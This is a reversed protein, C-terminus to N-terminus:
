ACCRKHKKGSGCPCFDNRGIKANRTPSSQPADRITMSELSARQLVALLEPDIAAKLYELWESSLPKAGNWSEPTAAGSDIDIRGSMVEPGKWKTEMEEPSAIADPDISLATMMVERCDCLPESCIEVRSILRRSPGLGEFVILGNQFLKWGSRRVPASDTTDAFIM